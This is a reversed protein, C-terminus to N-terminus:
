KLANIIDDEVDVYSVIRGNEITVLTDGTISLEKISSAAENKEKGKVFSNIPEDINVKYLKITNDNSDYAKFANKLYDHSDKESFFLVMYKDSSVNFTDGALILNYYSLSLGSNSSETNENSDEKKSGIEKTMFIATIFYTGIIIILVCVILLIKSKIEDKM